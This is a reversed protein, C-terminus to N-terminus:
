TLKVALLCTDDDPNAAGLARLVHDIVGDPGAMPREEVAARLLAFGDSLDRDRREVLGDTYFLLLDGGELRTTALELRPHDLVGLLVGDPAELLRATGHRLLVPPPHGAQAWTLTRPGPRYVAAIASATLSGHRDMLLRNLWGLLRDPPEGTCTLGSLANRMRAMAAAAALGHGSVDGIALFVEEDSLAAADYWDGGVRTHRQAPLYRVAARMGPLTRAGRPLPLIARQLEVAIHREEAIHRRERKLQLRTAALVEDTRRRQSVDQFVTHLAVPAGLPDLIPEAMVRLHRLDPGAQVRLEVEAPERRGLLTRMLQEAKPLDEPVVHEALRELALPGETRPRGFITYLQESWRVEGTLLDWRSWGLNGLRQAQALQAALDATDDHFRWSALVGGGLRCARVSLTAPVVRGADISAYDRPGRRLPTGTELVEVYAGFLGSLGLGPYSELLRVGIIEDRHRGLLDAADANVADVQFDVVTGDRDRIPSMLASPAQTTDLVARLWPADAGGTAPALEGLRRACTALVALVYRRTGDDTVSGLTWGIEAAGIIRGGAVLPLCSHPGEHGAAAGVLALAGPDASWVPTAERVARVLGIDSHPPIRAWESVVHAPLDHAGAVRLAGDPELLTLLASQAGLWGLAEETLRRALEDASRCAAFAAAALHRAAALPAPLPGIDDSAAARGAPRAGDGPPGGQPPVSASLPAPDSAGGQAGGSTGGSTSGPPPPAASAGPPELYTAPEFVTGRPRAAADAPADADTGLLLAAAVAPEVAAEVALELLHDYATEIGCGHREALLGKAQEIVTRARWASREAQLELRLREITAALAVTQSQHM